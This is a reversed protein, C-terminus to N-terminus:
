YPPRGHAAATAWALAEHGMQGGNNPLLNPPLNYLPLCNLQPTNMLSCSSLGLKVLWSRGSEQCHISM